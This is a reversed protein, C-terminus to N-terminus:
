CWMPTGTGCPTRLSCNLRTDEWRDPREDVVDFLHLMILDDLIQRRARDRIVLLVVYAATVEVRAPRTIWLQVKMWLNSNKPGHRTAPRRHVRM